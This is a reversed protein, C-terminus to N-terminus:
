DILQRQRMIEFGIVAASAAAGLSRNFQRGYPIQLKLNAQDLFSRTVGRKEGGILLFLPVSLDTQYIPQSNSV